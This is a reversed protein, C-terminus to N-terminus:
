SKFGRIPQLRTEREESFIDSDEDYFFTLIDNGPQMLDARQRLWEEVQPLAATLMHQQIKHRSSRRVPKVIIEWENFLPIGSASEPNIPKPIRSYVVRLYPYRGFRLRDYWDGRFHLVLAPLQAVSALAVSIREAGIPYSLEHSIKAKSRTPIIISQTDEVAVM